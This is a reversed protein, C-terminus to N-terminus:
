LCIWLSNISISHISSTKDILKFCHWGSIYKERNRLTVLHWAMTATTDTYEGTINSAYRLTSAVNICQYKNRYQMGGRNGRVRPSRIFALRLHLWHVKHRTSVSLWSELHPEVDYRFYSKGFPLPYDRTAKLFFKKEGFSDALLSRRLWILSSSEQFDKTRVSFKDWCAM